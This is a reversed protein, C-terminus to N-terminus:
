VLSGFFFQDLLIWCNRDMEDLISQHKLGLDQHNEARYRKLCVYVCLSFLGFARVAYISLTQKQVPCCMSCIHMAYAICGVNHTPIEVHTQMCSAHM